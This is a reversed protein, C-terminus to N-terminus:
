IFRGRGRTNNLGARLGAGSFPQCPVGATYLFCRVGAPLPDTINSVLTGIDYNQRLFSSTAALAEFALVDCSRLGLREISAVGPNLGSCDSGLPFGCVFPLLESPPDMDNVEFTAEGSSSTSGGCLLRSSFFTFIRVCLCACKCPDVVICQTWSKSSLGAAWHLTRALGIGISGLYTVKQHTSPSTSVLSSSKAPTKFLVSVRIVHRSRVVPATYLCTLM